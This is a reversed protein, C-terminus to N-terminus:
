NAVIEVYCDDYNVCDCRFSVAGSPPYLCRAGFAWYNGATLANVGSGSSSSLEVLNNRDFIDLLESTSLAMDILGPSAPTPFAKDIRNTSSRNYITSLGTNSIPVGYSWATNGADSSPYINTRNMYLKMSKINKGMCDYLTVGNGTTDVDNPFCLMFAKGSASFKGTSDPTSLATTGVRAARAKYIYTREQNFIETGNYILSTLETGNYIVKTIETGNYILAM